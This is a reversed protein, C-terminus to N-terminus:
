RRWVEVAADLEVMPRAQVEGPPVAKGGWPSAAGEKEEGVPGRGWVEVEM